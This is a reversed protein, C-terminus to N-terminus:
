EREQHNIEHNEPSRLQAAFEALQRRIHRHRWPSLDAPLRVFVDDAVQYELWSRHTLAPEAAPQGAGLVLAVEQLTKGEAQLTKIRELLTLHHRGYAAGRGSKLPAPLLGRTIYFRITRGPVGTEDSLDQLSLQENALDPQM